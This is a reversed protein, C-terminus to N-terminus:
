VVNIVVLAIALIVVIAACGWAYLELWKPEDPSRIQEIREQINM